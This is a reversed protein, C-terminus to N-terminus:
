VGAGERALVVEVEPVQGEFPRKTRVLGEVGMDEVWAVMVRERKKMKVVRAIMTVTWAM